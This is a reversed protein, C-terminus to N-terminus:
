ELPLYEIQLGESCYLWFVFFLSFATFLVCCMRDDALAVDTDTMATFSLLDYEWVSRFIFSKLYVLIHMEPLYCLVNLKKWSQATPPASRIHRVSIPWDSIGPQDIPADEWQWATVALQQLLLLKPRLIVQLAFICTRKGQIGVCNWLPRGANVTCKASTSEERGDTNRYPDLCVFAQIVTLSCKPCVTDYVAINPLLALSWKNGGM